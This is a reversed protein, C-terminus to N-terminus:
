AHSMSYQESRKKLSGNKDKLHPPGLSWTYIYLFVPVIIATLPNERNSCESSFINYFVIIDVNSAAIVVAVEPTAM